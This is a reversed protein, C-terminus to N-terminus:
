MVSDALQGIVFSWSTTCGATITGKSVLYDFAVGFIQHVSELRQGRKCEVIKDLQNDKQLTGSVMLWSDISSNSGRYNQGSDNGESHDGGTGGNTNDVAGNSHHGDSASGNQDTTTSSGAGNSSPEGVSAVNGNVGNSPIYGNGSTSRSRPPSSLHRESELM